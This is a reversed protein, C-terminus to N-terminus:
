GSPRDRPWVLVYEVACVLPTGSLILCTRSPLEDPSSDVETLFIDALPACTCGDYCVYSTHSPNVSFRPKGTVQDDAELAEILDDGITNGGDGGDGSFRGSTDGGAMVLPGLGVESINQLLRQCSAGGVLVAALSLTCATKM